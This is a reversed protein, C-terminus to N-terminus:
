CRYDDVLEALEANEALGAKRYSSFSRLRWRSKMTTESAADKAM